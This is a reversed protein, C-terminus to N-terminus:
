PLAEQIEFQRASDEPVSTEGPYDGYSVLEIGLDTALNQPQSWMLTRAEVERQALLRTGTKALNSDVYGPHCMLESTGEPLHRLINELSDLNLYGTQRLGFFHEPCSLGTNNIRTKFRRACWGVEWSVLYQSLVGFQSAQRGHLDRMRLGNGELPCRVNPIGFEHALAIVIESIGPLVHVHQHGDLHTPAIGARLVRDIQARLEIAIEHLDVRRTLLAYALSWANRPLEGRDNLLSRVKAPRSVPTGQTLALHVGVSLRPATRSMAVAMEFAEGNAMLSASTVMGYRHAHLIGRSVGETFGLDDANVILRKM